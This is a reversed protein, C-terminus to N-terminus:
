EPGKPVLDIVSLEPRCLFRLRPAYGRELGAGRSVVLTRGGDLDTRGAAWARPVQSLTILPGIVPLRVQGGHTHGAVLLDAQIEGLAFDPYHGFVIHFGEESPASLDTSRSEWFGLGTVKVPGVEVTRTGVYCEVGPVGSFIRPWGERDVNGGVAHVGLPAGLGTELFLRNLEDGVALWKERDLAHVYDGPLLVLDPELAVVERLV